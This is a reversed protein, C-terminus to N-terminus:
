KAEAKLESERTMDTVTVGNGLDLETVVQLVGPKKMRKTWKGWDVDVWSGNKAVRKVCGVFSPDSQCCVWDAVKINLKKPEGELEFDKRTFWGDGALLFKHPNSYVDVSVIQTVRGSKLVVNKMLLALSQKNSM